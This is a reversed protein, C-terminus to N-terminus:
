MSIIIVYKRIEASLPWVLKAQDVEQRFPTCACSFALKWLGQHSVTTSGSASM